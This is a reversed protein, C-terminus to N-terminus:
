VRYGGAATRTVTEAELDSIVHLSKNYHDQLLPMCCFGDFYLYQGKEQKVSKDDQLLSQVGRETLAWCGDVQQVHQITALFRLVKIVLSTSLGFFDVMEEVTRLHAEQLGREIFKEILAYPRRTEEHADIEVLWLPYLRAFLRVPILGLVNSALEIVRDPHYLFNRQEM